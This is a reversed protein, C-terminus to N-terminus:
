QVVSSYHLMMQITRLIPLVEPVSDSMFDKDKLVETIQRLFVPITIVELGERWDLDIRPNKMWGVVALQKISQLSCGLIFEYDEKQLTFKKKLIQEKIDEWSETSGSVEIHTLSQEYPKYALVDLENDYGGSSRKKARVNTRVFYGSYEYWEAALQELYNM